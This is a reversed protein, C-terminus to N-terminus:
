VVVLVTAGVVVTSGFSGVGPSMLSVPDILTLETNPPSSNGAGSAKSPSRVVEQNETPSESLPHSGARRVRGSRDHVVRSHNAGPGSMGILSIQIRLLLSCVVGSNWLPKPKPNTVTAIVSEVPSTTNRAVNSSGPSSGSTTTGMPAIPLTTVRTNSPWSLAAHPPM